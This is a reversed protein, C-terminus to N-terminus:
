VSFKGGGRFISHGDATSEDNQSNFEKLFTNETERGSIKNKIYYNRSNFKIFIIVALIIEICLVVVLFFNKGMFSLFDMIYVM